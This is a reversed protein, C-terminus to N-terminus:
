IHILSLVLGTNNWGNRNVLSGNLATVTTSNYWNETNTGLFLWTIGGDISYQVQMGDDLDNSTDFRIDLSIKVNTFGSTNIIPSTLYIM